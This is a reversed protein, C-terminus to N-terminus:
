RTYHIHCRGNHCRWGGISGNGHDRADAHPKRNFPVNRLQGIRCRASCQLHGCVSWSRSGLHCGYSLDCGTSRQRRGNGRVLLHALSGTGDTVRYSVTTSGVPFMSGPPLGGLLTTVAGACNDSGVPAPYNVVAGCQGPDSNVSIDPPCVITPDENDLVSVTFSCTTTNNDIDTVQYTVTSSGKPFSSGSGLGSFLSTIAGPCDDTGVPVAYNIVATCFGPETTTSINSPCVIQPVQDVGITLRSPYPTADYAFWMDDASANPVTIMVALRKTGPITHTINGFDINDVIWTGTNGVDWDSRNITTTALLARGGGAPNTELLYATLTGADDLDFDKMASWLRFRVPGNLINPVPSILWLQFREPNGEMFGSAGRQIFLGPEPHRTPDFDDLTPDTPAVLKMNGNPVDTQDGVGDLYYTTPCVPQIVTINVACTASQGVVDTVTLTVPYSGVANFTNPSVTMSAIGCNDTSGADM